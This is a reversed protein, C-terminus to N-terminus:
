TEEATLDAWLNLLSSNAKNLDKGLRPSEPLVRELDMGKLQIVLDQDHTFEARVRVPRM